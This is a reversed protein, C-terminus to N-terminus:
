DDPALDAPSLPGCAQAARKPDGKVFVLVTQHVKTLRRSATFIRASTTRLAGIPTVYVAENHFAAGADAFARITDAVFGRYHGSRKDRVEGVVWVAFRDPALRTVGQSIIDRYAHLFQDYPMNSLDAPDDSYVELDAYPPCSFLLDYRSDGLPGDNALLHGSDGVIWRPDYRPAGAAGQRAPPGLTPATALSARLGVVWLLDGPRLFPLCKAEYIPDLPLDGLLAEPAETHYDLSSQILQLGIRERWGPAYEDLRASPDSGCVVGLVPLERGAAALGALIGALSMGSGVPVVLREVGEAPLSAVQSATQEVAAPCEMGFPIHLWGSAAADDRARAVIVTNYGPRHQVIEAGAARAAELEPTLPGAPVHVRCPLGLEAAVSAVINVQPSQRSGATVVGPVDGAATILHHCTRVKGGRQGAFTFLDDRKVALGAHVEVPTDAGPGYGAGGIAQWQAVNAAVQAASLDIGTYQRGLVAAVVGRVSGGALPDLVRAGPPSFWRYALECLVPDFVSTGGANISSGQPLELYGAEFETREVPRGLLGEVRDKQDYYDPVHAARSGLTTAEARGLESRIGLSLWRRKRESWPGARADLVTFPPFVFREALTPSAPGPEGPAGGLQELLEALGDDTYGTDALGGPGAQMEVLLQALGDFDYTADDASKNDFLLIRRAQDDDIDLWIVPVTAAGRRRAVRSRHNGAVIYGTSRQVYCAGYFGHAEMSASIAVEDGRRKNDPHERLQAVPVAPEYEQAIRFLDPATV